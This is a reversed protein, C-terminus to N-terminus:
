YKGTQLHDGEGSAHSRNPHKNGSRSTLVQGKDLSVDGALNENRCRIDVGNECHLNGGLYEAM